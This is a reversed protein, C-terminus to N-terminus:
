LESLCKGNIFDAVQAATQALAATVAPVNQLFEEVSPKKDDVVNTVAKLFIAPVSLLDAVHAVAAGEMDIVTADNAMVLAEDVPSIDFSDGTSLKGVKLDLRKLLNSTHITKRAGIGYRDRIPLPNRRHHFAVDSILFIDGGCAGKVKLGGATGINIILDPKLVQISAYTVLAAPVTGVNNCGLVIDKGPWMINIQLDKYIGHYRTWPVGKPFPSDPDETLQFQNVLPLAEAEMAIIFVVNAIPMEERDLQEPEEEVAVHDDMAM